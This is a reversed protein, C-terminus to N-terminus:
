HLILFLFSFLFGVQNICIIDINKSLHYVVLFSAFKELLGEEVTSYEYPGDNVFSTNQFM